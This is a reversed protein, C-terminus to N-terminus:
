SFDATFSDLVIASLAVFFECFFTLPGTFTIIVLSYTGAYVTLSPGQWLTSYYRFANLTNLQMWKQLIYHVSEQLM